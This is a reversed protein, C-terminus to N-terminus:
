SNVYYLTAIPILTYYVSSYNTQFYSNMTKSVNSTSLRKESICGTPFVASEQNLFIHLVCHQAMLTKQNLISYILNLNM